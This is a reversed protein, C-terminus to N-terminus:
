PSGLFYYVVVALALLLALWRLVTKQSAAQAASCARQVSPHARLYEEVSDKADKLGINHNARLLKIAEIKSGRELASVAAPSLEASTRAAPAAADMGAFTTSRPPAPSRLYAEVAEKAEKLGLNRQERLIKIAEIKDGRQLASLAAPSLPETNNM